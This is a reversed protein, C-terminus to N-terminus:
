KWIDGTGLNQVVDRDNGYTERERTRFLTGTM